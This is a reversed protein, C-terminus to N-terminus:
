KLAVLDISKGYENFEVVCKSRFQDEYLGLAVSHYNNLLTQANKEIYDAEPFLRMIVFNGGSCVVPESVEGVSLAFAAKEYDEDMEGLTFYYGHGSVSYLDDNDKSGIYTNMRELREDDGSIGRLDNSIETARALNAAPDEGEANEIYVHITRAYQESTEVYAKFEEINDQRFEFWLGNDLLAYYIASELYSVGISFRMYRETMNNEALWAKYEGNSEFEAQLTELQDDVYKDMEKSETPIELQDCATLVVYNENINERVLSELEARHTEATAADDWIGKGYKEELADKYFLTLFRLEEYPIDYGNCTAVTKKDAALQKYEERNAVALSVGVIIGIFLAVSVSVCVILLNRKKKSLPTRADPRKNKQSMKKQNVSSM